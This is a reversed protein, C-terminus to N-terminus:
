KPEGTSNSHRGVEDSWESLLNHRKLVIIAADFAVLRNLAQDLAQRETKLRYYEEEQAHTIRLMGVM